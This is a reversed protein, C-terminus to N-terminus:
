IKKKTKLDTGIYLSLVKIKDILFINKSYHLIIHIKRKLSSENPDNRFGEHSCRQCM